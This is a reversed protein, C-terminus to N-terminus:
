LAAGCIWENLLCKNLAQTCVKTSLDALLGLPTSRPGVPSPSDWRGARALRQGADVLVHLLGCPGRLRTKSESRLVAPLPRTVQPWGLAGVQAAAGWAWREPPEGPVCPRRPGRRAGGIVGNSPLHPLQSRPRSECHPAAHHEDAVPADGSSSRVAVPAEGGRCASLECGGRFRSLKPASIVPGGAAERVVMGTFSRPAPHGKRLRACPTRPPTLLELVNSHYREPAM